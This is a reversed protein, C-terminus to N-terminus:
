HCARILLAVLTQPLVEDAVTPGKKLGSLVGSAAARGANEQHPGATPLMVAM